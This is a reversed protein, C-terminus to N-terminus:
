RFNRASMLLPFHRIPRIISYTGFSCPLGVRHHLCRSQARAVEGGEDLHHLPQSDPRTAEALASQLETKTMKYGHTIAIGERGEGGEALLHKKLRFRREKKEEAFGSNLSCRDITKVKM